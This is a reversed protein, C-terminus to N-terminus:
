GNTTEQAAQDARDAITDLYAATLRAVQAAIAAAAGAIGLARTKM